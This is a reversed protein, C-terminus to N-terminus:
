KKPDPEPDGKKEDCEFDSLVLVQGATASASVITGSADVWWHNTGKNSSNPSIATVDGGGSFDVTLTGVAGGTQNAVFHFTGGDPCGLGVHPEHLNVAIAAAPVALAALLGGLVLVKRM